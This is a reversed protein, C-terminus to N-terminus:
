GRAHSMNQEDCGGSRMHEDRGEEAAERRGQVSDVGLEQRDPGQRHGGPKPYAGRKTTLVCRGRKSLGRDGTVGWDTPVM